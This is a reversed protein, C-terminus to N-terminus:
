FFNEKQWIGHERRSWAIIKDTPLMRGQFWCYRQDGEAMSLALLLLFKSTAWVVRVAVVPWQGQRYGPMICDLRKLISNHNQTNTWLGLLVARLVLWERWSDCFVTHPSHPGMHFTCIPRLLSTLLSCEWVSGRIGVNGSQLFSHWQICKSSHSRIELKSIGSNRKWIYILVPVGKKTISGSKGLINQLPTSFSIPLHLAISEWDSWL